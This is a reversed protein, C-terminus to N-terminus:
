PNIHAGTLGRPQSLPGIGANQLGQLWGLFCDLWSESPLGPAGVGFPGGGDAYVHMEASKGAIKWRKFLDICAPAVPIHDAAVAIFLPPADEPVNVETLSPGYASVLFDPRSLDDHHLAVGIAVGGGASFGMIGIRNPDIEYMDANTRIHRIAQKGDEIALDIVRNLYEDGPDPIANGNPFIREYPSEQVAARRPGGSRQGAAEAPRQAATRTVRYKLIFAAIGKSNLWRATNVGESGWALFRFSGGPCIVVAAGTAVSSEPLYAAMAPTTVNRVITNDGQGVIEEEYDWTESGPAVGGWLRIMEQASAGHTVM